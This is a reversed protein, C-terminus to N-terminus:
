YLIYLRKQDPTLLVNQMYGRSSGNMSVREPVSGDPAEVSLSYDTDLKYHMHWCNGHRDTVEVAKGPEYVAELGTVQFDGSAEPRYLIAREGAGPLTPMLTGAPFPTLRSPHSLGKAAMTPSLAAAGMAGPLTAGVASAAMALAGPANSNGTTEERRSLTGKVGPSITANSPGEEGTVFEESTQRAERAAEMPSSGGCPPKSLGKPSITDSILGNQVPLTM